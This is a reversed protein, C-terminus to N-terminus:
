SWFRLELALALCSLLILAPMVIIGYKFFEKLTIKVGKDACIKAWLLGALAGMFSFNAGFNSGMILAFMSGRKAMDPAAFSSDELIRTFLITMPQNNVLNAVLSSLFGM